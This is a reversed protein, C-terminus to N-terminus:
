GPQGAPVVTSRERGLGARISRRLLSATELLAARRFLFVAALYCLAALSGGAIGAVFDTGLARTTVAGLLAAPAALAVPGVVLRFPRASSLRGVARGLVVVDVVAGALSGVGIASIGAFPLLPLAVAFLTVTHLITAKLVISPQGLAYLFGVAAVALPAAVMLSGCVWQVAIATDQWQEGFVGPVLGPASAALATLVVGAATATVRMGREIAPGPDERAAQLQSMYPFAVRHLPEVILVPIEILRKALTWLGLTGVGSLGAVGANLGQERIMGAFSIGQFRVGFSIVPWLARTGRLSPFLVTERSVLAMACTAAVARAVAGTALAWVGMGALVGAIAWAYFAVVGAADVSTLLRFRLSRSLVVKGPTQVAAIPLGALMVAVVLGASGFFSAVGGAVVALVATLALQLGLVARLEARTPGAPRRILGSGLGGDSLTTAFAMLTAGIAVIGFDRPVLMRALVINGGFGIVLNVAGWAGIVFVGSSVRRNLEPRPLRDDLMPEDAM